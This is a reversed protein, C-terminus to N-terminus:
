HAVVFREHKTLPRSDYPELHDSCKSVELANGPYQAKVNCALGHIPYGPLVCHAQIGPFDDDPRYAIWDHSNAATVRTDIACGTGDIYMGNDSAVPTHDRFIVGDRRERISSQKASVSTGAQVTALIQRVTVQGTIMDRRNGTTTAIGPVVYNGGTLAAIVEFTTSQQFLTAQFKQGQGVYGIKGLIQGQYIRAPDETVLHIEQLLAETGVTAQQV